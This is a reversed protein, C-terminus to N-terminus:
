DEELATTADGKTVPKKAPKAPEWTSQEVLGAGIADPVDITDGRRCTAEYDVTQIAVEDHPGTYTVKM